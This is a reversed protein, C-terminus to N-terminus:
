SLVPGSRGSMSFLPLASLHAAHMLASPSTGYRNKFATSFHSQSKFGCLFAVDSVRGQGEPSAALMAHAVELRISLIFFMVGGRASFVRYLAARSMGLFSALTQPSLSTDSINDIVFGRARQHLRDTKSECSSVLDADLARLLVDKTIANLIDDSRLTGTGVLTDEVASITSGILKGMPTADGFHLLREPQDKASAFADGSFMMRTVVSDGVTFNNTSLTNVYVDGAKLRHTGRADRVECVGKRVLGVSVPLGKLTPPKRRVYSTSYGTSSTTAVFLEDGFRREIKHLEANDSSIPKLVHDSLL